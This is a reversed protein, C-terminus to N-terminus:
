CLGHVGGWGRVSNTAMIQVNTHASELMVHLMNLYSDALLQLRQPDCESLLKETIKLSVFVHRCGAPVVDCCVYLM